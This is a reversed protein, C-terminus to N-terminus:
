DWWWRDAPIGGGVKDRAARLRGGEDPLLRETAIAQDARISVGGGAPALLRSGKWVANVAAEVQEPTRLTRVPLLQEDSFTAMRWGARDAYHQQQIFAAAVVMDILNRMQAYVPSAVSLAPYQRTFGAAFADSAKNPAAAAALQGDPGVLKNESLLQVGQGVLELSLRDDTTKVCDYNPTFWWRQLTGMSAAGSLELMSAIKVPPRELGLGILKMRYDAEILVAAFHTEAPVGFVRIKAMGLSERIGRAMQEAMVGRQDEPISRPIQRQFQQLRSLGEPTPDITCGVFVGRPEGPPYARLAVLLDVLELVPRGTALGVVRGSPDPAWGEAPGAIVIDNAEPYFFVYQLRQLGALYRMAEDLPKGTDFNRRIAQELRILSVKRLTAPAAIDAALGAKAARIRELRLAGGPDEFVQMRLVGEADISVGFTPLQVTTAQRNTPDNTQGRSENASVIGLVAASIAALWLIRRM